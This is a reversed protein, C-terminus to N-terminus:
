MAAEAMTVHALKISLKMRSAVRTVHLMNQPTTCSASRSPMPPPYPTETAGTLSLESAATGPDCHSRISLMALPEVMAMDALSEFLSALASRDLQLTDIPPTTLRQAHRCPHSTHCTRRGQWPSSAAQEEQPVTAEYRRCQWPSVHGVSTPNSTRCM